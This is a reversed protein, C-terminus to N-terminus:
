KGNVKFYKTLNTSYLNQNTREPNQSCWIDFAKPIEDAHCGWDDFLMYFIKQKSIHPKVVEFAQLTSSCLDADFHILSIQNTLKSLKTKVKSDSFWGKILHINKRESPLLYNKLHKKTLGKSTNDFQGKKWMTSTSPLGEFSDVGIIKKHQLGYKERFKALWILSLGQFVGFEVFDGPIENEAIKKVISEMNMLRGLQHEAERIHKYRDYNVQNIEFDKIDFRRAVWLYNIDKKIQEMDKMLTSINTDVNM